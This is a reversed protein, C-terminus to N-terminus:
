RSRGSDRREARQRASRPEATVGSIYFGTPGEAKGPKSTFLIRNASLLAEAEKWTSAEGIPVDNVFVTKRQM